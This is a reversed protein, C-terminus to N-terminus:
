GCLKKVGSGGESKGRRVIFSNLKVPVSGFLVTYTSSPVMAFIVQSTNPPNGLVVLMVSSHAPSVITSPEKNM